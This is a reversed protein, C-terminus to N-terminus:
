PIKIIGRPFFSLFKENIDEKIYTTAFKDKFLKFAKARGERYNECEIELVCNHNLFTKGIKHVHAQGFTVYIKM